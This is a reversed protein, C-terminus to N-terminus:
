NGAVFGRSYGLVFKGLWSDCRHSWGVAGEKVEVVLDVLGRDLLADEILRGSVPKRTINANSSTSSELRSIQVSRSTALSEACGSQSTQFHHLLNIPKIIPIILNQCQPQATYM